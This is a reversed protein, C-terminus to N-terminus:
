ISRAKICLTFGLPSPNKIHSCPGQLCPWAHAKCLTFVTTTHKKKKKKKTPTIGLVYGGFEKKGLIMLFVFYLVNFPM